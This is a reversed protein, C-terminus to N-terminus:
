VGYFMSDPYTDPNKCIEDTLDEISKGLERFIGIKFKNSVLVGGLVFQLMYKGLNNVISYKYQIVHANDIM